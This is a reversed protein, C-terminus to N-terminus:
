LLPYLIKLNLGRFHSGFKLAKSTFLQDRINRKKELRSYIDCLQNIYVPYFKVGSLSPITPFHVSFLNHGVKGDSKTYLVTPVLNAQSIPTEEMLRLADEHRAM